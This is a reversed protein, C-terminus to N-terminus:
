TPGKKRQSYAFKPDSTQDMAYLFRQVETRSRLKYPPQTPSYWYYDETGKSTGCMRKYRVETWGEPWGGPFDKTPPGEYVKEPPIIPETPSSISQKTPASKKNPSSDSAPTPKKKSHNHNNVQMSASGSAAALEEVSKTPNTKSITKTALVKGRSASSSPAAQREQVSKTPNMKAITKTALVKRRKPTQMETPSDRRINVGLAIAALSGPPANQKRTTTTTKATTGTAGVPSVDTTSTVLSDMPQVGGAPKTTPASKESAANVPSELHNNTEQPSKHEHTKAQADPTPPETETDSDLVLTITTDNVDEMPVNDDHGKENNNKSRHNTIVATSEKTKNNTTPAVINETPQEKEDIGGLSEITADVVSDVASNTDSEDEM